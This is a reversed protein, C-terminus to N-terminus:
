DREGIVKWARHEEWLLLNQEFPSIRWLKVIDEKIAAIGRVFLEKLGIGSFQGVFKWTRTTDAAM